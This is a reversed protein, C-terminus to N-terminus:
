RYTKSVSLRTNDFVIEFDDNENNEAAKQNDV